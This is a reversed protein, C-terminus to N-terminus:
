RWDKHRVFLWIISGLWALLFDGRLRENPLLREAVIAECARASTSAMALFCGPGALSIRM